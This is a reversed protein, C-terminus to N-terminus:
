SGAQRRDALRQGADLDADDVVAAVVEAGVLGALDLDAAVLDAALVDAGVGLGVGVAPQVGAVAAPEVDLAVQEALAAGVVGDDAAALVDRGGLDLVGQELVVGDGDRGDDPEVVLLVALPDRRHDREPGADLLDVDVVHPLPDALPEPRELRGLQDDDGVLHGLGGGALDQAALHLGVEAIAM